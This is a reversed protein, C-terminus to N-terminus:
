HNVSQNLILEIPANEINRIACKQLLYIEQCHSGWSLIYYYLHPLMLTNYISKLISSPYEEKLRHLIGTIKSLKQSMTQIYTKWKLDHSIHLGLYNFTDVREIITNNSSLVSYVVRRRDSHFVMVLRHDQM